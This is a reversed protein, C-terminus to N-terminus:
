TTLLGGVVVIRSNAGDLTHSVLGLVPVPHIDQGPIGRKKVRVEKAKLEGSHRSPKAM